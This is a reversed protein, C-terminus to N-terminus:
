LIKGGTLSASDGCSLVHFDGGYTVAVRRYWSRTASTNADFAELGICFYRLIWVLFSMRVADTTRVLQKM